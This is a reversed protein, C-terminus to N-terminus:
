APATPVFAAVYLLTIAYQRQITRPPFGVPVIPSLRVNDRTDSAPVLLMRFAHALYCPGCKSPTPCAEVACRHGIGLGSVGVGQDQVRVRTAVAAIAALVDVV